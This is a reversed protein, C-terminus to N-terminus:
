SFNGSKLSNFSGPIFDEVSANSSKTALSVVVVAKNRMLEFITNIISNEKNVYV